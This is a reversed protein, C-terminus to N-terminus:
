SLRPMIYPLYEYKPINVYRVQICTGGRFDDNNRGDINIFEYDKCDIVHGYPGYIKTAQYLLEAEMNGDSDVIPDDIMFWNGPNLESSTHEVLSYFTIFSKGTLDGTNWAYSIEPSLGFTDKIGTVVTDYYTTNRIDVNATVFSAIDYIDAGLNLKANDVDPYTYIFQSVQGIGNIMVKDDYASNLGTEGILISMFNRNNKLANLDSPLSRTDYGYESALQLMKNADTFGETEHWSRVFRKIEILRANVTLNVFPAMRFNVEKDQYDLIDFREKKAPYDEKYFQISCGSCFPFKTTITGTINTKGMFCNQMSNAGAYYVDVGELPNSGESVNIKINGSLKQEDKCFATEEITTDNVQYSRVRGACERIQNGCIYVWLPIHFEYGAEKEFTNSPINIKASKDDKVKLLVPFDYFYNFRYKLTCLLPMMPIGSATTRDPKITNGSKPLVDLNFFWDPDYIFDAHITPYNETFYEKIYSDFVGQEIPDTRIEKEFNTNAIKLYQFNQNYNNKLKNKVEQLTWTTEDCTFGTDTFRKPPLYHPEEKTGGRWSYKEILDLSHHELYAYAEEYLALNSTINYILEMNIPVETNFDSIEYEINHIKVKLPLVARVWITKAFSANTTVPGKTIVYGMDQFQKFDDVCKDLEKKVYNELQIEMFRKSPVVIGYKTIWFPAENGQGRADIMVTRSNDVIKIQKNEEKDKAILKDINSPIEIYGGQLRQIELGQLVIPKLCSDVFSRIEQEGEYRVEQRLLLPETKGEEITSRIYVVTAVGVLVVIGLIIFLTIQSKKNRM